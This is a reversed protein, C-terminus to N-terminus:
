KRIRIEYLAILEGTYIAGVSQLTWKVADINVTMGSAPTFLLGSAPLYILADGYKVTEGDVFNSKVDQPPTVKHSYTRIRKHDHDGRSPRSVNMSIQSFVVTKGYKAVMALVKPVLKTDLATVTM